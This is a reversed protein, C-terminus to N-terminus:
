YLNKNKLLVKNFKHRVYLLIATLKKRNNRFYNLFKYFNIAKLKLGYGIGKLYLMEAYKIAVPKNLRYAYDLLAKHWKESKEFDYKYTASFSSGFNTIHRYASMTEQYCHVRGHSLLAFYLLRDGPSLKLNMISFDMNKDVIYNRYMVTTLQGPMIDTILHNFTYEEQKCEPYSEDNPNSDADVVICNHAIAIYDSHSELFDIQKEIKHEDTWFDDGELCILYKGKCRTRLDWSNSLGLAFMNKERYIFNFNDPYKKENEKLVVRTNDTSCDEGIWVEYKYKTEQMLISDLAKIIYNEHNYVPVYISLMFDNNLM